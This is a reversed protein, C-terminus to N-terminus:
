AQVQALEGGPAALQALKYDAAGADLQEGAVEFCGPAAAGGV